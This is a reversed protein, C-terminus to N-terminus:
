KNLKHNYYNLLSVVLAIIAGRFIYDIATELYEITSILTISAFAKCLIQGIILFLGIVALIQMIDFWLRARKKM